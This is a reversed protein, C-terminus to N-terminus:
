AWGAMAELDNLLFVLLLGDLEFDAEEIAEELCKYRLFTKVKVDITKSTQTIRTKPTEGLVQFLIDDM